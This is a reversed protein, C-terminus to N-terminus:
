NSLKNFKITFQFRPKCYCSDKTNEIIWDWHYDLRTFVPLPEYYHDGLTGMLPDALKLQRGENMLETMNMGKLDEISVAVSTTSTSNIRTSNMLQDKIILPSNFHGGACSQRHSLVGIIDYHGSQRHFVGSGSDEQFSICSDLPYLFIM